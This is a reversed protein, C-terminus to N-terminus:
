INTINKFKRNAFVSKISVKQKQLTEGMKHDDNKSNIEMDKELNSNNIRSQELIKDSHYENLSYFNERLNYYSGRYTLLAMRSEWDEFKYNKM